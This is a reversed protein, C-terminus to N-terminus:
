RTWVVDVTGDSLVIRNDRYSRVPMPKHEALSALLWEAAPVFLPGGVHIFAMAAAKLAPIHYAEVQMLLSANSKGGWWRRKGREVVWTGDWGDGVVAYLVYDMVGQKNVKYSFNGDKTFRYYGHVTDKDGYTWTGVLIQELDLEAM